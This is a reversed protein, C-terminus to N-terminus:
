GEGKQRRIRKRDESFVFRIIEERSEVDVAAYRMAYVRNDAGTLPAAQREETVEALVSVMRLPYEELLLVLEAYEGPRAVVASELVLGAGSLEVVRGEHPFEMQLSGRRMLSLLVDLKRDVELLLRVVMDPQRSAALLEEKIGASGSLPMGGSFLRPSHGGEAMRFMAKLLTPVSLFDSM